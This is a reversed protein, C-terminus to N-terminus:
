FHDNAVSALKKVIIEFIRVLSNFLKFGSMSLSFIVVLNILM